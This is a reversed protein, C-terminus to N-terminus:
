ATKVPSYLYITEDVHFAADYLEFEPGGSREYDSAPFWEHYAYHFADHIKPLICKFVAYTQDPVTHRVMGEPPESEPEVEVCAYYEFDGTEPDFNDMVGYSVERDVVGTIEGMRPVFTEWLQTIENKENRGRYKIGIVTFGAKEEMRVHM